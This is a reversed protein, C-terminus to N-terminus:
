SGQVLKSNFKPVYDKNGFRHWIKNYLNILDAKAAKLEQENFKRKQLRPKNAHDLIGM